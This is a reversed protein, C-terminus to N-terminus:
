KWPEGAKMPRSPTEKMEMQLKSIYSGGGPIAFQKQGKLERIRRMIENVIMQYGEKGPPVRALWEASIPEGYRVTVGKRLFLARWLHNSNEIYAPVVPVKAEAALWGIGSKPPLFDDTRCRTGEPFVVLGNGARLVELAREIGERDYRQRKIPLVNLHRVLWGLVPMTFLEAKAFFFLQRLIAAGVLPPDAYSRHNSAIIMGGTPPVHELGEARFSWLLKGVFRSLRWGIKYYPNM